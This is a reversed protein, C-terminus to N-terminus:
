DKQEQINSKPFRQIHKNNGDYRLNSHIKGIYIMSVTPKHELKIHDLIFKFESRCIEEALAEKIGLKRAVRKYLGEIQM